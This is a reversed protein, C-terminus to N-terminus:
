EISADGDYDSPEWFRSERLKAALAPADARYFLPWTQKRRYSAYEDFARMKAPGIGAKDLVCVGESVCRRLAPRLLDPLLDVDRHITQYDVLRVRPVERVGAQRKFVCYARLQRSRSATFIWLRDERMPVSFHWSLTPSDRAALLTDPNQRLLEDWFCDFRSDFRDTADVDYSSHAEPLDAGFIADRLHLLAGAAPAMAQAIPVNLKQLARTAFVRYGTVCYVITEWDGAPIPNSFERFAELAMPGITTDVFVDVWPQNFREDLLWLAFGRYEPAVVWGRGSAATLREGQFHYQLPINCLCGVIEGSSNELVWGIPWRKAVHPWLPSARWLAQWDDVSSAQANLAAELRVIQEYDEFRAVRLHPRSPM